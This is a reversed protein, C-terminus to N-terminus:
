PATSIFSCLAQTGVINLVRKINYALFMLSVEANIKRFGRLLLHDYGWVKKITGFVHEVISKRQRFIHPQERLRQKLRELVGEHEWRALHRGRPSTTCQAKALCSRCAKTGYIYIRRGDRRHVRVSRRHLQQSQPCTYTDRSPEYVFRDVSYQATERTPSVPIPVHATIHNDECQKLDVTDYYGADACVSLHEVGLTDSTKQAVSALHNSDFADQSPTYDVILHHQADVATHVSYAPEIGGRATKMFRADPDTLCIHQPSDHAVHELLHRTQELAAIKEQLQEKTISPDATREEVGDKEDLQKFYTKISQDLGRYDQEIDYRKRIHNQGNSAKFKTSDIAVLEAGFLNLQQCLLVFSRFVKALAEAHQTRFNSITKHDPSLRRLLWLVEINRKTECELSRSSRLRHLYGYLYLKLLDKPNYPPRGTEAVQTHLFGCTIMNLKDVFADIFRVPNDQGVYDEIAEPFLTVQERSTGTIHQM